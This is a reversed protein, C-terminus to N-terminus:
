LKEKKNIFELVLVNHNIKLDKIDINLLKPFANKLTEIRDLKIITKLIEKEEFGLKLFKEKINRTFNEIKMLNCFEDDGANEIAIIKGNNKLVKLLTVKLKEYVDRMSALSWGAFVIDISNEPLILDKSDGLLFTINSQKINKKKNINMLSESKESVYLKNCNESLLNTFKGSGAGIELITKDKLQYNKKIYDKIKNDYDECKSFKEYKLGDDYNFLWLEKDM